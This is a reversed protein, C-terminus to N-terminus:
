RQEDREKRRTKEDDDEPGDAAGAALEPGPGDPDLGLGIMYRREYARQELVDRWNGGDDACADEITEVGMQMGLSQAQREKLPDIMPKGWAIFTGKVLYRKAALFDDVGDPLTVDGLSVAEELWAGFAPMAFQSILRNRRARYTRWVSLLAARAASYNVDRYNKGLEHAEVGLGAALQRLFASEFDAFNSNPHTSRVVELSENPLLHPIRAGQWKIDRGEAYGAAQTMYAKTIDYFQNGTGKSKAIDAGLVQMAQSWDIETKIVAAVAAQMIASELETDNYQGLMRMPTIASAFESVGRTMEPRTQDYTHLVIPRGWKTSRPVRKHALPNFTMGLSVDSPHRERIYYAIPEGYEDREIGGRIRDAAILEPPTELRDVDIVNLCTRYPGSGKKLELVALCEGDVYDTQDVLQFMQSFTQQRRADIQFETSEAHAEWKRVVEDQWENAAEIDKLGLSRWDIKLSLKLGSGSVADRNMRAANKAFPNNRVLDRARARITKGDKLVAADASTLRPRWMSLEGDGVMRADRYHELAATIQGELAIGEPAPPTVKPDNDSM